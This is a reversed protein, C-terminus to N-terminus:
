IDHEDEQLIHYYFTYTFRLLLEIITPFGSLNLCYNYRFFTSSYALKLFSARNFRVLPIPYIM